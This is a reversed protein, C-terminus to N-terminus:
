QENARTVAPRSKPDQNPQPARQLGISVATGRGLASAIEIHGRHRQLIGYVVSLGLGSGRGGKTTFVPELARERVQDTMGVGTDTIQLTVTEADAAGTLTLVGGHPMAEAANAILNALVERIDPPHGLVPPLDDLALQVRLGAGADVREREWRGREVDIAERVATRLDLPLLPAPSRQGAFRQFRQVVQVAGAVASELQGLAEPGAGRLKLLELAGLVVSLRNNLDHAIGDAMDGLARLSERRAVSQQAQAQTAFHHATEIAAAAQAALLALGQQDMPTFSQGTGENDCALVGLLQNGSLLPEAIVATASTQKLYFPHAHPSSRVDNLLLGTRHQAVAGAVGEGIRFIGDARWSGPGYWARTRLLQSAPDWLFITGTGGGVLEAARRAILNLLSPFHREATLEPAATLLAEQQRCRDRFAAGEAQGDTLEHVITAFRGSGLGFVAMRLHARAAEDPLPYDESQETRAVRDYIDLHPPPATGYVESAKRGPANRGIGLCRVYAPNMALIRYDSPSGDEAYVMECLAVGDPLAEFLGRFTAESERLAEATEKQETIDLHTGAIRQAAGAPDRAVVWTRSLVWRWQGNKAQLRLELEQSERNDAYEKLLELFSRQDEPHVLRTLTEVTPSLEAPSYGLMTFFSSNAHLAGTALDLEFLGHPLADWAAALRSAEADTM